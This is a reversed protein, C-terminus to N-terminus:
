DKQTENLKTKKTWENKLMTTTLQYFCCIHLCFLVFIPNICIKKKQKKQRWTALHINIHFTFNIFRKIKTNQRKMQNYFFTMVISLKKREMQHHYVYIVYTQKHSLCFFFNNNDNNMWNGISLPYGIYMKLLLLLFFSEINIIIITEGNVNIPAPTQKKIKM